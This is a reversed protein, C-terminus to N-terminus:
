RAGLSPGQEGAIYSLMLRNLVQGGATDLIYELEIEGDSEGIMTRVITPYLNVDLVGFPTEYVTTYTKGHEFVFETNVPGKKAMMVTDKGVTIQTKAYVGEDVCDEYTIVSQEHEDVITGQVQLEINQQEDDYTQTGTINILIDKM